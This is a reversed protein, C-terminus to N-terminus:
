SSITFGSTSLAITCDQAHDKPIVVVHAKVERERERERKKQRRRSTQM